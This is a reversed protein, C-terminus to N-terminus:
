WIRKYNGPITFPFTLPEGTAVRSYGMRLQVPDEAVVNFSLRSPYVSGNLLTFESYNAELKRNEKLYEKMDVRTIKFTEPNLWINQLLTVPTAGATEAEKRIKRRGTTSLRYEPFDVDARFSNTEYFQLDNGILLAQLIDFDIDIQLFRSVLAYDGVFYEKGLRNLYKVSDSTVMLRFMEIGLAPSISVWIVSDKRIRIQGNFDSSSRKEQYNADIKASFWDFHFENEKLKSYLYEPGEEKLPAKYAVRTSKCSSLFLTGALLLLFLIAARNM